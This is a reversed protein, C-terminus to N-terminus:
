LLVPQEPQFGSILAGYYGLSDVVGFPLNRLTATTILRPHVLAAQILREELAIPDLNGSLADAYMGKSVYTLVFISKNTFCAWIDKGQFQAIDVLDEKSYTGEEALDATIEGWKEAVAEDIQLLRCTDVESAKEIVQRAGESFGAANTAAKTDQKWLIGQQVMLDTLVEERGAARTRFGAMEERTIARCIITTGAVRAISVNAYRSKWEDVQARTVGEPLGANPDVKAEQENKEEVTM